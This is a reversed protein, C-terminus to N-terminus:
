PPVPMVKLTHEPNAVPALWEPYTCLFELVRKSVLFCMSRPLKSADSKRYLPLGVKFKALITCDEAPKKFIEQLRAEMLIYMAGSAKDQLVAVRLQLLPWAQPDPDLDANIQTAPDQDPDANLFCIRIRIRIWSPLISGCFYFFTSFKM